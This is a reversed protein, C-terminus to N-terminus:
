GHAVEQVEDRAAEIVRDPATALLDQPRKGGLFSNASLFWYAMGWADKHGALVEIVRAMTKLPRFSADRDLGYDPFYDTGNHHIAFILGQKEV